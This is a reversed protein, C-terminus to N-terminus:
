LRPDRINSIFRSLQTMKMAKEATKKVHEAYKLRNDLQVELYRGHSLSLAKYFFYPGHYAGSREPTRCTESWLEDCQEM